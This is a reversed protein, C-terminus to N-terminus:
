PVLTPSTWKLEALTHKEPARRGGPEGAAPLSCVTPTSEWDGWLTKTHRPPPWTIELQAIVGLFAGRALEALALVEGGQAKIGDLEGSGRWSLQDFLSTADPYPGKLREAAEGTWCTGIVAVSTSCALRRRAQSWGLAREYLQLVLFEPREPDAAGLNLLDRAAIAKLDAPLFCATYAILDAYASRELHGGLARSILARSRLLRDTELRLRLLSRRIM